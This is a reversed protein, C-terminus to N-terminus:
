GGRGGGSGGRRVAGNSRRPGGRAIAGGTLGTLNRM